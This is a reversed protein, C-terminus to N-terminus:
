YLTCIKHKKRSTGLPNCIEFNDAYLTLSIACEKSLIANRKFLLGDWFSRYVQKDSEEPQHKEKLNIAKNLITECNLLKQLSKLLPM